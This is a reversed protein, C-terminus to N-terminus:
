LSSDESERAASDLGSLVAVPYAEVMMRLRSHHREERKLVPRPQAFRLQVLRHQFRTLEDTALACQHLCGFKSSDAMGRVIQLESSLHM